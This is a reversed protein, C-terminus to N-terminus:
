GVLIEHFTVGKEDSQTGEVLEQSFGNNDDIKARGGLFVARSKVFDELM